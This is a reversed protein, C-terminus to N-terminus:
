FPVDDQEMIPRSLFNTKFAEDFEVMLAEAGKVNGDLWLDAILVIAAEYKKYAKGEAELEDMSSCRSAEELNQFAYILLEFFLKANKM